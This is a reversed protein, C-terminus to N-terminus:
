NVTITPAIPQAEVQAQATVEEKTAREILGSWGNTIQIGAKQAPTMKISQYERVYNYNVVHGDPIAQATEKKKLGRM